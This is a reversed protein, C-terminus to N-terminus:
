GYETDFWSLSVSFETSLVSVGTILSGAYKDGSKEYNIYRAKVTVISWLSRLCIIEMWPTCQENM